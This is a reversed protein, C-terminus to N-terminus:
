QTFDQVTWDFELTIRNSAWRRDKVWTVYDSRQRITFLFYKCIVLRSQIEGLISHDHGPDYYM